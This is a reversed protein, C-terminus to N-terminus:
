DAAGNLFIEIASRVGFQIGIFDDGEASRHLGINEIAAYV